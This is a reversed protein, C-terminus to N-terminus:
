GEPKSPLNTASTGTGRIGNLRDCLTYRLESNRSVAPGFHLSPQCVLAHTQNCHLKDKETHAKPYLLIIRSGMLCLIWCPRMCRCVCVGTRRRSGRNITIVLRIIPTSHLVPVASMTRRQSIMKYARLWSDSSVASSQGENRWPLLQGVVSLTM